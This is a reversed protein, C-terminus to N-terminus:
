VVCYNWAGWDIGSVQMQANPLRHKIEGSASSAFTTQWSRCPRSELSPPWPVM